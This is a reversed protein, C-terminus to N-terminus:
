PLPGWLRFRGDDALLPRGSSALGAVFRGREEWPFTGTVFAERDVLVYADPAAFPLLRLEPRSALPAATGWDVSLVADGPVIAAVARLREIAAPREFFGREVDSFPPVWGALFAGALAPVAFAATWWPRAPAAPRAPASPQTQAAPQRTTRRGPARRRSRRSLLALLRRGGLAAAVIAPVLLLLGYQALVLQQTRNTSLLHALLPPGLLLLWRPRLVALGGLGAVLWGAMIWGGPRTLAELIAAPQQFPALLVGLGGGLWAYYPDTDYAVGARLLPKVVGFVAIGWAVALGFLALGAERARLPGPARAGTGRWLRGPARAAVLLGIVAVPYVQDEKAMLAPLAAAFMLWTRRTLGAWGAVLVLPLALSETHFDARVQQQLIPWIPLPAALTAALWTARPGRGLAARLLLFAAPVALGLAMAQLLTLARADPWALGLAAPVVLLPSFHLGLFNGPNFSSTFGRGHGISWALQQFYAQDFAGATLGEAKRWGLWAMWAFGAVASAVVVLWPISAVAARPRDRVRAVAAAVRIGGDTSATTV